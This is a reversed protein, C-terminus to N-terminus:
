LNDLLKFFLRKSSLSGKETYYGPLKFQMNKNTTINYIQLNKELQKCYIDSLITIIFILCIRNMSQM